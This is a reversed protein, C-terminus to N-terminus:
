KRTWKRKEEMNNNKFDIDETKGNKNLFFIKQIQDKPIFKQQIFEENEEISNIEGTYVGKELISIADYIERVGNKYFITANEIINKM